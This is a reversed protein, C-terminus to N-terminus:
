LAKRVSVIIPDLSTVVKGLADVVKVEFTMAPDYLQDTTFQYKCTGAVASVITMAVSTVASTKNVWRLNVSCGTLDVILATAKDKCTVNLVTGTDGAVMDYTM